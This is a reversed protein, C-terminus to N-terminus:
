NLDVKGTGFETFKNHLTYTREFLLSEQLGSKKDNYNRRM